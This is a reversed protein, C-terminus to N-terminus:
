KNTLNYHWALIRKKKRKKIESKGSRCTVYYLLNFLGKKPEIEIFADIGKEM